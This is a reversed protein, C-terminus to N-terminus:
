IYFLLLNQPGAELTCNFCKAVVDAKRMLEDVENKTLTAGLMNAVKKLEKLDTIEDQNRNLSKFVERRESEKEAENAAEDHRSVGSLRHSRGKQETRNVEM